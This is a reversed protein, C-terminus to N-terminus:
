WRGGWAGKKKKLTTKLVKLAENNQTNGCGGLSAQKDQVDVM